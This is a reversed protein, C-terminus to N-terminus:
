PVLNRLATEARRYGEVLRDLIADTDPDPIASGPHAARWRLNRRAGEDWTVVPRFAPVAARIKTTDFIAPHSLDGRILESWRWDPAVTAILDASLHLLRPTVGAAVALAQHIADWTLVEDSTIHFAEGIARPVGLLGVLGVALDDAHTITWPSTGDGSIVVEAGRLIRDVVTWDGPFPPRADDYTHSPRVVTVPFERERWAATLVKEAAIKDRAYPLFPNHLPTSETTPFRAVPKRYASASSVFVYQDTRGTFTDVAREADSGSYCLFDVVADFHLNGTAAGVDDSRVDAQHRHVGAPLSRLTSTGRNVVHVEDGLRASAQVCAASITGTGGIYLVRRNIRSV